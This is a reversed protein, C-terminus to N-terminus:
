NKKYCEVANRGVNNFNMWSRVFIIWPIRVFVSGPKNRSECRCGAIWENQGACFFVCRFGSTPFSFRSAYACPCMHCTNWYNSTDNLKIYVDRSSFFFSSIDGNLNNWTFYVRSLQQFNMVLFTKEQGTAYVSPVNCNNVLFIYTKSSSQCITARPM